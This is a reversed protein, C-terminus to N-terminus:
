NLPKIQRLRYLFEKAERFKGPYRLGAVINYDGRIYVGGRTYAWWM